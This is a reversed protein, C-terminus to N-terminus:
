KFQITGYNMIKRSDHPLLIFWFHHSNLQQYKNGCFIEEKTYYFQLVSLQCICSDYPLLMSWFHHSNLQQYKFFNKTEIIFNYFAWNAFTRELVWLNNLITLLLSQNNAIAPTHADNLGLKDDIWLM